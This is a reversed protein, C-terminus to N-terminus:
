VDEDHEYNATPLPAAVPAPFDMYGSGAGAGGGMYGTTGSTDAYTAGSADAVSAAYAPNSFGPTPQANKAARKNKYVVAGVLVGGAVLILLNIIM